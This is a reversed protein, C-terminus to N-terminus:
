YRSRSQSSRSKLRDEDMPLLLCDLVQYHRLHAISILNHDIKVGAASIFLNPDQLESTTLPRSNLQQHGRRSGSPERLGAEHVM